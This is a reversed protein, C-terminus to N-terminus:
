LQRNFHRDGLFIAVVERGRTLFKRIPKVGFIAQRRHCARLDFSLSPNCM